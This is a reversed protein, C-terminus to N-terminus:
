TISGLHSGEEVGFQVQDSLWETMWCRIRAVSDSQQPTRPQILTRQPLPM